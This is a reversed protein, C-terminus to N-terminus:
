GIVIELLQNLIENGCRDHRFFGTKIEDIDLVAVTIQTMFQKRTKIAFSREAPTKFVPCSEQSFNGATDLGFGVQLDAGPDADKIKNRELLAFISDTFWHM